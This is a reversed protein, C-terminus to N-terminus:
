YLLSMKEIMIKLGTMIFCTTYGRLLSDSNTDKTISLLTVFLAKHSGGIVM